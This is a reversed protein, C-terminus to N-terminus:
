RWRSALFPRLRPAHEQQLLVAALYFSQLTLRMLAALVADAYEPHSLFVAIVAARVRGSPQRVLDALL